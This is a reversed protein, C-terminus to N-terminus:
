HLSKFPLHSANEAQAIVPKGKNRPIQEEQKTLTPTLLPPTYLKEVM